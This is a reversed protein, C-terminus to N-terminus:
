VSVGEIAWPCTVCGGHHSRGLALMAWLLGADAAGGLLWVGLGCALEECVGVQRDEAWLGGDRGSMGLRFVVQLHRNVELM